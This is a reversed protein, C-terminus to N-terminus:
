LQPRLAACIELALQEQQRISHEFCCDLQDAWLLRGSDNDILRVSVRLQSAEVRLSGELRRQVPQATVAHVAIRAGFVRYLEYLLQENFGRCFSRGDIGGILKVAVFQLTAPGHNVAQKPVRWTVNPTCSGIPIDFRLPADCGVSVYYRNLKDRLRGLQVRVIPDISPDFSGADRGFVETAIASASVESVAGGMIRAVLFRLLQSVRPAKAFIASRLVLSLANQIEAASIPTAPPVARLEPALPVARATVKSGREAGIHQERQYLYGHGQAM